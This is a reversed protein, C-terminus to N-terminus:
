APDGWNDDVDPDVGLSKLHRKSYIKADALKAPLEAKADKADERYSWGSLIKGKLYLYHTYDEQNYKWTPNRKARKQVYYAVGGLLAAGAVLAGIIMDTNSSREVGGGAGPDANNQTDGTGSQDFGNGDGGSQETSPQNTSNRHIPINPSFTVGTRNTSPQNTKNAHIGLNPSKPAPKTGPQQVWSAADEPHQRMHAIYGDGMWKEKDGPAPYRNAPLTWGYARSAKDADTWKRSIFWQVLPEM